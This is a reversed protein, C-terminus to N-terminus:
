FPYDREVQRTDVVRSEDKDKKSQLYEQENWERDLQEQMAEYEQQLIAIERNSIMIQISTLIFTDSTQSWKKKLM